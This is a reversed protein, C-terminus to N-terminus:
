CHGPCFSPKEIEMGYSASALSSQVHFPFLVKCLLHQNNVLRSTLIAPHQGPEKKVDKHFSVSDLDMFECFFFSFFFSALIWGDQGFFAQAGFSQNNAKPSFKEPPVLRTIGLPSSLEM